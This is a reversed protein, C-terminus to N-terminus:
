KARFEFWTTLPGAATEASVILRWLMEGTTCAAIEGKGRFVGPQGEVPTLVTQNIGMFMESGQLNIMVKSVDVGDIQLQYDLPILSAIPQPQIMLSLTADGMTVTCRQTNLDCDSGGGLSDQSPLSFLHSSLWVALIFVILLILYLYSSTSKPENPQAM